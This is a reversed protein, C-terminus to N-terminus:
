FFDYADYLTCSLFVFKWLLIIHSTADNKKITHCNPFLSQRFRYRMLGPSLKSIADGHHIASLYRIAAVFLSVIIVLMIM